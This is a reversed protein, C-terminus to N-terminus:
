LNGLCEISHRTGCMAQLMYVHSEFWILFKQQVHDLRDLHTKAAGGWIVCGYELISRVNGFYAALIPEPKLTGRVCGTQLSRIMVGLARNVKAVSHNVHDRFTLKTDLWVGLDRISSVRELTSGNLVKIFYPITKSDSYIIQVQGPQSKTELRSVLSSQCLSNIDKQLLLSDDPTSIKHYLKVDDAFLLCNTKIKDPLYNVYM